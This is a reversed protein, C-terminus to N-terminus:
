KQETFYRAYCLAPFQVNSEKPGLGWVDTLYCEIKLFGRSTEVTGSLWVDLRGSENNYANWIRANGSIEADAKLVAVVYDVAGSNCLWCHAASRIYDAAGYEDERMEKIIQKANEHEAVTLWKKSESTIKVKM